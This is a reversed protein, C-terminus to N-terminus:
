RCFGSYFVVGLAECITMCFMLAESELIGRLPKDVDEYYLFYSSTGFVVVWGLLNLLSINIQNVCMICLTSAAGVLTYVFHTQISRKYRSNMFQFMIITITFCSLGSCMILLIRDM